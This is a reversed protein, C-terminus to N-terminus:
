HKEKSVCIKSSCIAHLVVFGSKRSFLGREKLHAHTRVAESRLLRRERPAGCSTASISLSLSLSLSIYIYLSFVFMYIYIYLSLSLSLSFSLSLSLSLSRAQRLPAGCSTASLARLTRPGDWSGVHDVRIYTCIYIYIYFRMHVCSDHTYIEREILCVFVYM